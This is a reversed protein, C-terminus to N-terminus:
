VTIVNDRIFDAPRVIPLYWWYSGEYDLQNTIAEIEPTNTTLPGVLTFGDGPTGYTVMVRENMIM